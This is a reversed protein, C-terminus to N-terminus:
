APNHYEGIYRDIMERGFDNVRYFVRLEGAEDVDYRSEELLGNEKATALAEEVGKRTM